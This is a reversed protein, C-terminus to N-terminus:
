TTRSRSASPAAMEKSLSDRMQESEVPKVASPQSAPEEPAPPALKPSAACSGTLLGSLGLAVIIILFFSRTHKM